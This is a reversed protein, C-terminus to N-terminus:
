KARASWTEYVERVRTSPSKKSAFGYAFNLGIRVPNVPVTGFGVIIPQGYDAFKKNKLDQDWALSPHNKLLTLGFYIGADFGLSYSENTLDHSPIDIPNNFRAKIEDMEEQTRDRTSVHRALWEGLTSLSAASYDPEWDKSAPDEQIYATLEDVRSPLVSQFWAFYEKLEGQSMETFRLTFPPQIIQYSM